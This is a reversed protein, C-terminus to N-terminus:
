RSYDALSLLLHASEPRVHDSHAGAPSLRRGRVYIDSADVNVFRHDLAFLPYREDLSLLRTTFMPAPAPGIGSHGIGPQREARLHWFGTARDHRSYTAVVPGRLPAGDHVESPLICPFLSLFADRRAAMQFLLMSDATFPRSPSRGEASWGLTDDLRADAAWQVAECLLRCGFSHGVLHLYQGEHNALVPAAAPDARETDLYGLLRGLIHAAYGNGDRAGMAHARDRIRRYGSPTVPSSSPWRVVVCWPNFGEASLAPYRTPDAKLNDHVLALLREATRHASGPSTQWGHVYVLIDTAWAPPALRETFYDRLRHEPVPEDTGADLLWGSEDLDIVEVETTRSM